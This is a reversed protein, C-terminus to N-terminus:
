PKMVDGTAGARASGIRAAIDNVVASNQRGAPRRSLPFQAPLPAIHEVIANDNSGISSNNANGNSDAAAEHEKRGVRVQLLQLRLDKWM